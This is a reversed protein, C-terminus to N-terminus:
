IECIKGETDIMPGGCPAVSSFLCSLFEINPPFRSYVFTCPYFGSTVNNISLVHM